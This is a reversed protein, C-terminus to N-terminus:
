VLVLTPTPSDLLNVIAGHSDANLAYSFPGWVIGCRQPGGGVEVGGCRREVSMACQKWMQVSVGLYVVSHFIILCDSHCILNETPPITSITHVDCISIYKSGGENHFTRTHALRNVNWPHPIQLNPSKRYPLPIKLCCSHKLVRKIVQM